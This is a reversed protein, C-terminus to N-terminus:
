FLEPYKALHQLTQLILQDDMELIIMTLYKSSYRTSDTVELARYGRTWVPVSYLLTGLAFSIGFTIIAYIYARWTHNSLRLANFEAIFTSITSLCGLLGLQIGNVVTDCDRTNVLCALWLQAGRSGNKFEKKELIVSMVGLSGKSAVLTMLHIKRSGKSLGDSVRLQRLELSLLILLLSCAMNSPLDLYLISRDSTVGVVGPGFLKQLLYRALVKMALNASDAYVALPLMFAMLFFVSWSGELYTGVRHDEKGMGM